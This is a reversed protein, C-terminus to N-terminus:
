KARRRRLETKITRASLGLRRSIEDISTGNARALAVYRWMEERLHEHHERAEAEERARIEILRVVDELPDTV